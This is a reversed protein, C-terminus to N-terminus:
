VNNFLPNMFGETDKKSCYILEGKREVWINHSTKTTQGEEGRKRFYVGIIILDGKKLKTEQRGQTELTLM